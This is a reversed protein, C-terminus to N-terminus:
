MTKNTIRKSKKLLNIEKKIRYKDRKSTINRPLYKMKIQRGVAIEVIEWKNNISIINM